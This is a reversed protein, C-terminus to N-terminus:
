YIMVATFCSGTEEELRSNSSLSLPSNLTVRNIFAMSSKLCLALSFLYSSVTDHCLATHSVFLLRSFLFIAQKLLLWDAFIFLEKVLYLLEVFSASKQGTRRIELNM